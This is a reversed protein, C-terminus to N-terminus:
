IGVVRDQLLIEGVHPLTGHTGAGVQEWIACIHTISGRYHADLQALCKFPIVDWVDYNDDGGSVVFPLINFQLTVSLLTTLSIM